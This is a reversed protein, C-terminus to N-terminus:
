NQSQVNYGGLAYAMGFRHVDGLAGQPLYAYNFSYNKLDFGFGFSLGALADRTNGVRQGQGRSNYGLRLYFPKDSHKPIIKFEGGIAFAPSLNRGLVEVELSGEGSERWAIVAYSTLPLHEIKKCGGLLFEVPLRYIQSGYSDFQRGWHRLVAGLRLNEWRPDYTLGLDFAWGSARTEGIEGWILRAAAGWQIQEVIKGATWIRLSHEAASFSAGTPPSNREIVDFAGYDYINLEVGFNLNRLPRNFAIYGSWLDIPHRAYSIVVTQEQGAANAPNVSEASLRGSVVVADALAGLRPDMQMSLMPFAASGAALLPASLGLAAWVLTILAARLTSQSTPLSLHVKM